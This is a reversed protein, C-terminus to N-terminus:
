LSDLVPMLHLDDAPRPVPAHQGAQSGCAPVRPEGKRQVRRTTNVLSVAELEVGRECAYEVEVVLYDGRDCQAAAFVPDDRRAMIPARMGRCEVILRYGDNIQQIAVLVGSFLGVNVDLLEKKQLEKKNSVDNKM